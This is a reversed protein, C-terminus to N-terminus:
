ESAERELFKVMTVTTGHGQPFDVKVRDMFRNIIYTGLGHRKEIYEDLNHVGKHPGAKDGVGSDIINIQLHNQGAEVELKISPEPTIRPFQKQRRNEDYGKDTSLSLKQFLHIYAHRIVNSCAEDVSIEIKAIDEQSFGMERAVSSVFNRILPLVKTEVPCHIEIFTSTTKDKM